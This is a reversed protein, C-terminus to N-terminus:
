DHQGLPVDIIRLHYRGPPLMLAIDEGPRIAVRDLPVSSAPEGLPRAEIVRWGRTPRLVRPIAVIRDGATKRWNPRGGTFGETPHDIILDFIGAPIAPLTSLRVADSGGHCTTQSITLPDIGTKDKLRAAMWKIGSQPVKGAHAYGVHILLKATPHKQLFSALHSAQAEERAAIQQDEGAIKSVDRQIEYQLLRYGLAKAQRGLRGYGAESLYYGDGDEFYPRDPHALFSPLYQEYTDAPPNTLAELALTDYGLPRLQRAIEATFGRGRSREHSENVIVISTQRARRVIEEMASAASPLPACGTPKYDLSTAAILDERGFLSLTQYWSDDAIPNNPNIRALNAVKYRLAPLLSDAPVHEFPELLAVQQKPM